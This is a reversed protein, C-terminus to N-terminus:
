KANKLTKFTTFENKAEFSSIGRKFGYIVRIKKM